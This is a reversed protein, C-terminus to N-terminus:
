SPPTRTRRTRPSSPASASATRRASCILKLRKDKGGNQVDDFFSYHVLKKKADIYEQRGYGLVMDYVRQFANRTVDPNERVIQLYDEFNGEWNLDAYQDYDQLDAIQRILSGPEVTSMLAFEEALAMSAARRRCRTKMEGTVVPSVTPSTTINSSFCRHLTACGGKGLLSLL